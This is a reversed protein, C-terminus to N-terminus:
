EFRFLDPLEDTTLADAYCKECLPFVLLSDEDELIALLEKELKERRTQSCNLLFVSKQLRRGRKKLMRAAKQRISDSAIDYSLLYRPM